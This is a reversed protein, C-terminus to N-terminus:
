PQARRRAAERARKAEAAAMRERDADTQKRPRDDRERRAVPVTREPLVSVGSSAALALAAAIVMGASSRARSM